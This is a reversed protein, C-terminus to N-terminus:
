AGGRRKPGARWHASLGQYHGISLGVNAWGWVPNETAHVRSKIRSVKHEADVAAPQLRPIRAEVTRISIKANGMLHKITSTPIFAGPEWILNAGIWGDADLHFGDVSEEIESEEMPLIRQGSWFFELVALDVIHPWFADLEDRISDESRKENAPPPTSNILRLRDRSSDEGDIIPPKNSTYWIMTHNRFTRIPRYPARGTIYRNGSIAKIGETLFQGAGAEEAVVFRKGELEALYYESELNRPKLNPLAAQGLKGAIFNCLTTKGDGGRGQWYVIERSPREDWVLAGIASMLRRFMRSEYGDFDTMRRRVSNLFPGLHDWQREAAIEEKTPTVRPIQLRHFCFGPDDAFAIPIIPDEILRDFGQKIISAEIQHLTDIAVNKTMVYEPGLLEAEATSAMVIEVILDHSSMPTVQRLADARYFNVQGNVIEAYFEPRESGMPLARKGLIWDRIDQKLQASIQKVNESKSM